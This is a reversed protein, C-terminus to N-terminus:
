AALEAFLARSVILRLDPLASYAGVLWDRSQTFVGNRRARDDEGSQSLKTANSQIRSVFYTHQPRHQRRAEQPLKVDRVSNVFGRGDQPLGPLGSNTPCSSQSLSLKRLPSPSTALVSAQGTEPELRRSFPSSGYNRRLPRTTYRVSESIRNGRAQGLSAVFAGEASTAWCDM